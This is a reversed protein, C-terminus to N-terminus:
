VLLFKGEKDLWKEVTSIFEARAQEPGIKNNSFDNRAAFHKYAAMIKSKDLFYRVMGLNGSWAARLLPSLHHIKDLQKRGKLKGQNVVHQFPAGTVKVWEAFGEPWEGWEILYYVSRPIRKVDEEQFGFSYDMELSFQFMKEDKLKEAASSAGSERVIARAATTSKVQASLAKINEISHKDDALASSLDNAENDVFEVHQVTAIQAIIRALDYNKSEVATYYPGKSVGSM